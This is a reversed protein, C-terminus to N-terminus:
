GKPATLLQKIQGQKDRIEKWKAKSSAENPYMTNFKLLNM